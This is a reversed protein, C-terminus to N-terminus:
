TPKEPLIKYRFIQSAILLVFRPNHWAYRAWLRRPESCLRFFWELGIRQLWAPAQKKNGSIFDFAAGVGVQVMPLRHKHRAMWLDQKPTGLGVFLLQCDSAIMDSIVKEEETENLERFPPSYHYVIQLQPYLHTLRQYM